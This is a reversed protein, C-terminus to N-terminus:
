KKLVAAVIAEIPEDKRFYGTAGAAIMADAIDAPEHMSLGFVRTAPRAAVLRKVLEVGNIDPLSVDCLVVDPETETVVRFGEEGTAAAAIVDVGAERSLLRTFLHRVSRSDEILVVRVRDAPARPPSDSPERESAPAASQHPVTIEFRAGAGPRSVVRMGGGYHELRQRIQFLGFGGVDDDARADLQDTAFGPGDDSCVIRLSDSTSLIEVTVDAGQAHKATNFLLERVCQFLFSRLSEDDVRLSADARLTVRVSFRERHLRCLKEVAPVLGLDDLITPTLEATLLRCTRTAEDIYECAAAIEAQAEPQDITSDVLMLTMRTAVLSQQLEDHLIRALRRREREEAQSLQRTLREVRRRYRLAQREAEKRASIDRLSVLRCSRGEFVIHSCRLEATIPNKGPPNLEIETHEGSLVPYGFDYGLLSAAPRELLREAAPNLFVIRSEPDIVLVGDANADIVSQLRANQRRLEDKLTHRDIAHVISRLLAGPTAEAIPLADQAGQQLLREATAQQQPEYVAIVPECFDNVAPPDHGDSCVMILADCELPTDEGPRVSEILESDAGARELCERVAAAEPSEASLLKLRRGALTMQPLSAIPRPPSNM